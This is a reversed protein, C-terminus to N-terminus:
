WLSSNNVRRSIYNATVVFAFNIISNFLGAATALGYDSNLMGKRYIYYSLVEATQSNFPNILLMIKEYGVNLISGMQLIFMVVITPMISPLTVYWTQKFKGAGDISAAEYLAQDVGSLAAFYIISGWGVEQWIGSLVYIPIFNHENNLLSEHFTGGTLAAIFGTILGDSSVFEKIMGCIVVLSIFHPLYSITQVTKLVFKHKLENMLLALLIPAPFGFVISTVSIALTNVINRTFYPDQFFRKFNDLGVWDSGSIGLRINFDQFSALLGYMPKYMFLVYFLLVPVGMLYIDWHKRIDERARVLFSKRDQVSKNFAKM